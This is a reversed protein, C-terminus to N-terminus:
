GGFCNSTAWATIADVTAPVTGVTFAYTGGINIVEVSDASATFTLDATEGPNLVTPAGSVYNLGPQEACITGGETISGFPLPGTGVNQVTVVPNGTSIQVYLIDALIVSLPVAGQVDLVGVCDGCDEDVYVSLPIVLTGEDADNSEIVLEDNLQGLNAGAPDFSVQLNVEASNPQLTGSEYGQVVFGQNGTIAVSSITLPGSGVNSLRIQENIPTQNQAVTGFDVETESVEIDGDGPSADDDDDVADDDDDVADDDDDVADDDDAVLGECGPETSCGGVHISMPGDADADTTILISDGYIDAAIPAFNVSITETAGSQVTVPLQAPVQILSFPTDPSNELRISEVLVNTDGSNSLVIERAGSIALPDVYGFDVSEPDALLPFDGGGGGSGDDCAPLVLCLTFGLALNTLSPLRAHLM